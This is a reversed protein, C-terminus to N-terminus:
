PTGAFGFIVGDANTYIGAIAGKNNIAFIQTNVSGEVDFPTITGDATRIFGHTIPNNNDEFSGAITGANNIGTASMQTSGNPAAFTTLTGDSTRVFGVQQDDNLTGWGVITGDDNIGTVSAAYSPGFLTIHGDATRVFGSPHYQTQAFAVGAITQSRNVAVATAGGLFNRVKFEVTEGSPDRLFPHPIRGRARGYVGVIWGQRNAGLPATGGQGNPVTFTSISGDAARIFGAAVNNLYYYGTIVGSASIAVPVTQRAGTVDFTVFAGDPHWLFGHYASSDLYSGTVQGKDNMAVSTVVRAGPIEFTVVTAGAGSCLLTALAFAAAIATQIARGM